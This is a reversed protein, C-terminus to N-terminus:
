SRSKVPGASYPSTSLPTSHASPRMCIAQETQPAPPRHNGPRDQHVPLGRRRFRKLPCRPRPNFRRPRTLQWPRGRAKVVQPWIARERRRAPRCSDDASGRGNRPGGTRNRRFASTPPPWGCAASATTPQAGTATTAQRAHREPPYTGPHASASRPHGRM